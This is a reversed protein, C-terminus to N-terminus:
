VVTTREHGGQGPYLITEMQEGESRFDWAGLLLVLSLFMMGASRARADKEAERSAETLIREVDESIRDQCSPCPSHSCSCGCTSCYHTKEERRRGWERGCDLCHWQPAHGDVCCGGWVAKQEAPLRFVGGTPYGYLVPVAEGSDCWPCPPSGEARSLEGKVARVALCRPCVTKLLDEPM